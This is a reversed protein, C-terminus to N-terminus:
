QPILTGEEGKGAAAAVIIGEFFEVAIRQSYREM